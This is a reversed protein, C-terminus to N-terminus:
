TRKLLEARLPMERVRVGTAAFVANTLAAGVCARGPEGIGGSTLHAEDRLLWLLPMEDPVDFKRAKRNIHLEIGPGRKEM